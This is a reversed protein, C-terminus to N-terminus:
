PFQTEAEAEHLPFLSPVAVVPPTHQPLEIHEPVQVPPLHTAPWVQPPTAFGSGDAQM